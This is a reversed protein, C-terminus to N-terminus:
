SSLLLTFVVEFCVTQNVAISSTCVKVTHGEPKTPLLYKLFDAIKL